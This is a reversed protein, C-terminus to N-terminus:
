VYYIQIIRAAIEDLIEEPSRLPDEEPANPNLASSREEEFVIAREIVPVTFLNHFGGWMLGGFLGAVLGIILIRPM